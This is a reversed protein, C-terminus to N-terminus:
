NNFKNYHGCRPCVIEIKGELNEGLKKGCQLCRVEKSIVIGGIQRKTLPTTTTDNRHIRMHCSRCLWTVDLVKSYDDHHAIMDPTAKNCLSCSLPKEVKGSKIARNVHHRVGKTEPHLRQYESNKKKISESSREYRRHNLFDCREQNDIRWQRCYEISAL